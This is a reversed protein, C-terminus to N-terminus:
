KGAFTAKPFPEGANIAEAANRLATRAVETLFLPMSLDYFKSQSTHQLTHVTM